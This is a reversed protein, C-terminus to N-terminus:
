KAGGREAMLAAVAATLRDPYMHLDYGLGDASWWYLLHGSEDHAMRLMWGAKLLEDEVAVLLRDRAAAETLLAPTNDSQDHWFCHGTYGHGFMVIPQRMVGEPREGEALLEWAEVMVDM